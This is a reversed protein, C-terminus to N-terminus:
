DADFLNSPSNITTENEGLAAPSNVPAALNEAVPLRSELRDVKTQLDGLQESMSKVEKGFSGEMVSKVALQMDSTLGKEIRSNTQDEFRDIRNTFEKKYEKHDTKLDDLKKDLDTRINRLSRQNNRESTTVNARIEDVRTGVNRLGVVGGIVLIIGFAGVIFTWLYISTNYFSEKTANVTSKLDAIQQQMALAKQQSLTTDKIWITDHRLKVVQKPPLAGTARITLLFVIFIPLHYHKM